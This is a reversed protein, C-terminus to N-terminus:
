NLLEFSLVENDSFGFEDTASVKISHLGPALNPLKFEWIHGSKELNKYADLKHEKYLREMYPDVREQYIMPMLAGDDISLKVVDREGGDFFNVIVYTDERLKGRDLGLPYKNLIDDDDADKLPPDLLVRLRDNPDGDASIFQPKVENKQFHLLYFGNPNGDEMTANNVGRDDRPGVKWGAGRVEALTHAIFPRGYWGHKHDVQVKWSNSTDHGSITYLHNFRKLIELLDKFNTTNIGDSFSHDSAYTILPIHTIIVILHDDPVDALDNKIWALQKEDIHGIYGNGKGQFGVNNLALFHAMGYDFSYYDPGFVSKYSQTAYTYNPSEGNIDHNGPVNWIPIGIKSMLLNHRKYLALNDNVVDGAVLGFSAEYPNEFLIDIIDKRMMDLEENNTTQPDAFGMAKFHRFTDTSILAFNIEDPLPGTPDIVPWKWKAIDPTGEPYYHYYFQPLQVDNAPVSYGSPKTIFLTSEPPLKITYKGLHDTKIVDRGNSVKIGALGSEGDDYTGNGNADLYVKGRAIV